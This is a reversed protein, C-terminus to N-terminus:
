NPMVPCFCRIIFRAVFTCTRATASPAGATNQTPADAPVASALVRLTPAHGAGIAGLSVWMPWSDDRALLLAQGAPASERAVVDDLLGDPRDGKVVAVVRYEKGQPTALVAHSLEQLDQSSSRAAPGICLPCAAATAGALLLAATAQARRTM